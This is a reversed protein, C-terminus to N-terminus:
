LNYIFWASCDGLGEPEDEKKMRERKEAKLRNERRLYVLNGTAFVVIGVSMATFTITASTYKPSPSLWGLLWTALIGGSQTMIFSVAVVTARRTHPASNNAMWTILSPAAGYAGPVTCFLSGYRVHSSTSAYFMTFGIVELLSFFIVTYGRCQYRDSVFASIFSLVFAVAYPPVSMLQAQNGAYGLGAVITPEFYALGLLIAGSFFFVVALFWVHPSKASRAVETWSFGDQDDDESVSGAHKLTSIVYARERETLFRAKEPSHPLFFFSSRALFFPLHAKGPKGGIGNMLNIAAALLGSFAGALSTSVFFFAVRPLTDTSAVASVQHMGYKCGRGLISFLSISFLELYFVVQVVSLYLFRHEPIDLGEMMGLFFRCALLGSYNNVLGQLACVVGWLTVMAPLMLDPGIHKLLLTSPFEVVIYPLYTVTLAVTYQYNSMALSTQLGAVRANGINTRDLSALWFFTTCLPLIWADCKHWVIDELMAREVQSFEEAHKLESLDKM